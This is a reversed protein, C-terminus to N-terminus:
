GRWLSRGEAAADDIAWALLALGVFMAPYVNTPPTALAAIGGGAFAAIARRHRLGRAVPAEGPQISATAGAEPSAGGPSAGGPSSGGPDAGGPDPGPSPPPEEREPRPIEAAPESVVL